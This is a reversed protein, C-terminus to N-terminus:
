DGEEPWYDPEEDAHDDPEEFLPPAGCTAPVDVPTVTGPVLARRFAALDVLAVQGNAFSVAIRDGEPAVTAIVSDTTPIFAGTGTRPNWVGFREADAVLIEDTGPIWETSLQMGAYSGVLTGTALDYVIAGTTSLVTSVLMRDPSSQSFASDSCAPARFAIKDTEPDDFPVAHVTGGRTLLLLSHKFDVGALDADDHLAALTVSSTATARLVNSDYDVFVVDGDPGLFGTNTATDVPQRWRETAPTTQADFVAVTPSQDQWLTYNDPEVLVAFQKTVRPDPWATAAYGDYVLTPKGATISWVPGDIALVSDPGSHILRTSWSYPPAGAGTVQGTKLDVIRVGAGLVVLVRDGEFSVRPYIEVIGAGLDYERKEGGEETSWVILKTGADIYAIRSGSADTAFNSEGTDLVRAPVTPVGSYVKAKWGDDYQGHIVTSGGGVVGMSGSMKLELPTKAGTALDFKALVKDKLAVIADDLVVVETWDLGLDIPRKMAFTTADYIALPLGPGTVLLDGSKMEVVRPPPYSKALLSNISKPALALTKPDVYGIRTKGDVLQTALLRGDRLRTLSSIVFDGRKRVRVNGTTLDFRAIERPGALVVSDGDLVALTAGTELRFPSPPSIWRMGPVPQDASPPAPSKWCGGIVLGVLLPARM